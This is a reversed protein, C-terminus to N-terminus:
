SRGINKKLVAIADQTGSVRHEAKSLSMAIDVRQNHKIAQECFAQLASKDIKEVRISAVAHTSLYEEYLQAYTNILAIGDSLSMGGAAAIAAFDGINNGVLLAPVIEEDKFLAAIVYGVLFLIPYATTIKDLEQQSSTFLIRALNRHLTAEAEEFLKVVLPYDDYLERDMGVFQSGYGPFLFVVKM